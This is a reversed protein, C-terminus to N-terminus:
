HHGRRRRDPRRATRPGAGASRPGTRLVPAHQGAARLAACVDRGDADPLGIDLILVGITADGAFLRMAEDGRHAVVAEHGAFRLADTLVRRIAHDDECIGIRAM